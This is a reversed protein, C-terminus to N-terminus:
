KTQLKYKDTWCVCVCVRMPIVIQFFHCMQIQTDFVRVYFNQVYFHVISIHIYKHLICVLTVVVFKM